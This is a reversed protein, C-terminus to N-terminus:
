GEEDGRLALKVANEQWDNEVEAAIEAIYAKANLNRQDVAV